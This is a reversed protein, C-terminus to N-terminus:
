KRDRLWKVSTVIFGVILSITFTAIGFAAGLLLLDWFIM